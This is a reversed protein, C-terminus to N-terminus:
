KLFQAIIFSLGALSLVDILKPFPHKSRDSTSRTSQNIVMLLLDFVSKNSQGMERSSEIYYNMNEYVYIEDLRPKNSALIKELGQIGKEFSSKSLILNKQTEELIDVSTEDYHALILFGPVEITGVYVGITLLGYVIMFDRIDPTLNLWFYVATLGAYFVVMNFIFLYSLSKKRGENSKWSLRFLCVLVIFYAIIFIWLLTSELFSLNV